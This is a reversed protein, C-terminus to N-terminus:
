EEIKINNAECFEKLSMNKHCGIIDKIKNELANLKKMFKHDEHQMLCLRGVNSIALGAMIRVRGESIDDMNLLSKGNEILHEGEKIIQKAFDLHNWKKKSKRTM